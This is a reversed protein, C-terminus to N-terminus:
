KGESGNTGVAAVAKSLVDHLDEDYAVLLVADLDLGADLAARIERVAIQTARAVPYGFAGCSIAPFAITRMRHAAALALANRYCSALM